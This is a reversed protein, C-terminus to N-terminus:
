LVLEGEEEGHWYKIRKAQVRVLVIGPTDLGAKFWRKLEPLWHKELTARQRILTASGSVAVYLYGEGHFGLSVHPNEAIDRVTRSGEYTFYYSNGDYEVDGNNSMPRTSLQSRSTHTTLLAIDLKAIKAAVAKLTTEAM